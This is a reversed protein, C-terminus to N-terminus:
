DATTSPTWGDYIREAKYFYGPSQGTAKTNATMRWVTKGTSTVEMMTSYDDTFVSSTGGNNVAVILNNGNPLRDCDRTTRLSTNAYTWVEQKSPNIEVAVYPSDNQLCILMNGNSLIDPEHPDVDTGYRSWDMLSTIAGLVNLEVTFYRNRLNIFITTSSKWIVANAHTWGGDSTGDNGYFDKAYWSWVIGGTSSVINMQADDYTDNNGFNYLTGGDPLRQVDHSIKTTAYSWQLVGTSNIEYIGSGTFFLYNGNALKEVDLGITTTQLYATPIKYEWVTEGRMNIEVLRYNSTELTDYFLTTGSSVLDKYYVDVYFNGSQIGQATVNVTDTNTLNGNSVALQFTYTGVEGPSFTATATNAGTLTVTVPGTTQSWAYTLTNGDPTIGTNGNLTVDDGIYVTRDAGANVTEKKERVKKDLEKVKQKVAGTMGLRLGAAILVSCVFLCITFVSFIKKLKM